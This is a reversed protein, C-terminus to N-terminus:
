GKFRSCNTATEFEDKLQSRNTTLQATRKQILLKERVEDM